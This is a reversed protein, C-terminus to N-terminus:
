SKTGEAKSQLVFFAEEFFLSTFRIKTILM